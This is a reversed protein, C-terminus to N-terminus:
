GGKLKWTVLYWEILMFLRSTVNFYMGATRNEARIL